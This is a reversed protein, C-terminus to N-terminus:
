EIMDVEYLTSLSEYKHCKVDVKNTSTNLSKQCTVHQAKLGYRKIYENVIENINQKQEATAYSYFYEYETNWEKVNAEKAVGLWGMGLLISQEVYQGKLFMYALVYQSGKYGWAAPEKLLNFAQEYNGKKYETIGTMEKVELSLSSKRITSTSECSLLLFSLITIIITQKIRM